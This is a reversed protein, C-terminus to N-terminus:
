VILLVSQVRSREGLHDQANTHGVVLINHKGGGEPQLVDATCYRAPLTWIVRHRQLGLAELNSIVQIYRDCRGVSSRGEVWAHPGESCACVFVLMCACVVM